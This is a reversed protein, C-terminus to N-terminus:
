NRRPPSVRRSSRPLTRGSEMRGFQSVEGLIIQRIDALCCILGDSLNKNRAARECTRSHGRAEEDRARSHAEENLHRVCSASSRRLREDRSRLAASARSSRPVSATDREVFVNGLVTGGYELVGAPKAGLANDRLPHIAGIPGTRARHPDHDAVGRADSHLPLAALLPVSPGQAM